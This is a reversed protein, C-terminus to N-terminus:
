LLLLAKVAPLPKTAGLEKPACFREVPIVKSQIPGNANGKGRGSPSLDIQAAFRTLPRLELAPGYGRV